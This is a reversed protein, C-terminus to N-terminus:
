GTYTNGVILVAGLAVVLIALFGFLFRYFTKNFMTVLIGFLKRIGCVIAVNRQRVERLVM